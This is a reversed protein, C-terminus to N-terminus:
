LVNGVGESQGFNTKQRNETVSRFKQRIVPFLCQFSWFMLGLNLWKNSIESRFFLIMSFDSLIIGHKNCFRLKTKHRGPGCM